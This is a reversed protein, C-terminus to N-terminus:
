MLQTKILAKSGFNWMNPYDLMLSSKKRWLGWIPHYPVPSPIKIPLKLSGDLNCKWLKIPPGDTLSWVNDIPSVIYQMIPWSSSDVFFRFLHM